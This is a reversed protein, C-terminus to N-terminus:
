SHTQEYQARAEEIQEAIERAFANRDRDFCIETLLSLDIIVRVEDNDVFDEYCHGGSRVTVRQRADVASQVAARVM